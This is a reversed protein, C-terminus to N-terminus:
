PVLSFDDFSVTQGNFTEIGFYQGTLPTPDTVVLNVNDGGTSTVTYDLTLGGTGYSGTVTLTYVEATSYSIAATQLGTDGIVVTGSESMDIQAIRIRGGSDPAIDVLYYKNNAAGFNSSGSLLGFGATANTVPDLVVTATFGATGAGGLGPVEVSAGGVGSGAVVGLASGNHTYTGNTQVWPGVATDNFDDVFPLSVAAQPTTEVVAFFRKLDGGGPIDSLTTTAGGSAINSQADWVPWTTPATSLDTASVLDYVKGAQSNWEFDYNGPNSAHPTIVLQMATAGTGAQELKLGSYTGNYEAQSLGIADFSYDATYNYTGLLNGTDATGQYFSVSGFNTTNDHGTLDLVVTLLQPGSQADPGDVNNLSGPGGFGDLEGSTRYILTALGIGNGSPQTFDANTVPNRFFGISGWSGTTSKTLTASLTFLGSATGKTANIYSGVPLYASQNFVPSVSGDDNFGAAAVWTASGGASTIAPSFVDAATNNLAGTGDGGFNGAIIIEGSASAYLAILIAMPGTLPKIRRIAPLATTLNMNKSETHETQSHRTLNTKRRAHIPASREGPFM